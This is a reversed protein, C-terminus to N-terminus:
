ARGTTALLAAPGDVGGTNLEVRASRDADVALGALLQLPALRIVGTSSIENPQAVTWARIVKAMPM